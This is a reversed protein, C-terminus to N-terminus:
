FLEMQRTDDKTVVKQEVESLKANYKDEAFLMILAWHVAIKFANSSYKSANKKEENKSLSQDTTSTKIKEDADLDLFHLFVRGGKFRETNKIQQKFDDEIKKDSSAESKGRWIEGETTTGKEKLFCYWRKAEVVDQFFKLHSILTDISTFKIYSHSNDCGNLINILKQLTRKPKNQSIKLIENLITQMVDEDTKRQIRGPMLNESDKPFLRSVGKTTIFRVDNKIDLAAGVVSNVYTLPVLYSQAIDHANAGLDYSKLIAQCCTIDPRFKSAALSVNRNKKTIKDYKQCYIKLKSSLSLMVTSSCIQLTKNLPVEGKMISTPRLGSLNSWFKVTDKYNYKRLYDHLILDNYHSYYTVTTRPNIHGALSAIQFYRQQMDKSLNQKIICIQEEPMGTLQSVTDIDAFLILALESIGSHRHQYFVTREGTLQSLIETCRQNVLRENFLKRGGLDQVFIAVNESANTELRRQSLYRDLIEREDNRLFMSAEVIRDSSMTKISGLRNKHIHLLLDQSTEIENLQLKFAESPRLFCRRIVILLADIASRFRISEDAYLLQIEHRLQQFVSESVVQNRVHNRSGGEELFEPIAIPFRRAIFQFLLDLANSAISDYTERANLIAEYCIDVEDADVERIDIEKFIEVWQLGIANIYRVATNKGYEWRKGDKLGDLIWELFIESQLNLDHRTRLSKLHQLTQQRNWNPRGNSEQECITKMKEIIRDDNNYAVDASDLSNLRASLDGEVTTKDLQGREINQTKKDFHSLLSTLSIPASSIRGAAFQRFIFPLRTETKRLGAIFLAEFLVSSKSPRQVGITKLIPQLLATVGRPKLSNYHEEKKYCRLFGFIATLTIHDPYFRRLSKKQGDIIVCTAHSSKVYDVDIFFRGGVCQLPQDDDLLKDILAKLAEKFSLGGFSSAFLVIDALRQPLSYSSAAKIYEFRQDFLPGLQNALLEADISLGNLKDRAKDFGSKQFQLETLPKILLTKVKSAHNFEEEIHQKLEEVKELIGAREQKTLKRLAKHTFDPAVGLMSNVVKLAAADNLRSRGLKIAKLVELNLKSEIMFHYGM